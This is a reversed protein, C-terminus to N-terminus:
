GAEFNLVNSTQDPFIIKVAWPGKMSFGAKVVYVGSKIEKVAPEETGMDMSTMYVQAKLKLGEINKQDKKVEFEISNIGVKPLSKSTLEVDYKQNYQIPKDAKMGEMAHSLVKTQAVKVANMDMGEMGSGEVMMLNMMRVMPAKDGFGKQSELDDSRKVTFTKKPKLIPMSPIGETGALTSITFFLITALIVKKM